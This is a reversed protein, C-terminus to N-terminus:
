SDVSLFLKGAVSAICLINAEEISFSELLNGPQNADLVSVFSNQEDSGCVWVLSSAELMATGSGSRLSTEGLQFM